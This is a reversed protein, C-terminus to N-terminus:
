RRGKLPQFMTKSCCEERASYCSTSRSNSIELSKGMSMALKMRIRLIKGATKKSFVEGTKGFGMNESTTTVWEVGPSNAKSFYDGGSRFLRL